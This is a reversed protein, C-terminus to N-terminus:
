EGDHKKTQTSIDNLNVPNAAHHLTVSRMKDISAERGTFNLIRLLVAIGGDAEGSTPGGFFGDDFDKSGTKNLPDREMVDFDDRQM